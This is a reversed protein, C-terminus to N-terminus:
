TYLAFPTCFYKKYKLMDDLHLSINEKACYWGKTKDWTESDMWPDGKDDYEILTGQSEQYDTISFIHTYYINWSCLDKEIKKRPSGTIIHIEWGAAILDKTLQSFFIPNADIVGHIDLGLRM